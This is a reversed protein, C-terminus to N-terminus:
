AEPVRFILLKHSYTLHGNHWIPGLAVKRSITEPPYSGRKHTFHGTKHCKVFHYDDYGTRFLIYEEGLRMEKKSVEELGFESTLQHRVDDYDYSTLLWDNIGVAYGFCNAGDWKGM